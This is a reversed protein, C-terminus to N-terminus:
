PRAGLRGDSKVMGRDWGRARCYLRQRRDLDRLAMWLSKRM